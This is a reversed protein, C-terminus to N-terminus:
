SLVAEPHPWTFSVATGGGVAESIAVEGGRTGIIKKVLALGLGLGGDRDKPRLTQFIM